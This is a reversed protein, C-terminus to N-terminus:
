VGDCPVALSQAAALLDDFVAVGPPLRSEEDAGYGSRVLLPVCGAALGAQVDSLKDGIMFSAALDISFREAAELLMGPLPKRCACTVAYRGSGEPHHPCYLWCDVRAGDAALQATMHRHLAEVQDEGYYGRAVGSQNSVVVVLFGARNLLSIAQAAGPFFDLEEIRYLYGREQNITGDRDLFVARRM